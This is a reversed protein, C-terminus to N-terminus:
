GAEGVIDRLLASVEARTLKKIKYDKTVDKIPLWVFTKVEEEKYFDKDNTYFGEYADALFMKNWDPKRKFYTAINNGYYEM